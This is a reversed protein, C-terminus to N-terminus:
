LEEFGRLIEEQTMQSSKKEKPTKTSKEKSVLVAERVYRRLAIVMKGIDTDEMLSVAAPNTMLAKKLVSMANKLDEEDPITELAEIQAKIDVYAQESETQPALELELHAATTEILAPTSTLLEKSPEPMSEKKEPEQEKQSSALREQEKKLKMKEIFSLEKPKAELQKPEETPPLDLVSVIEQAAQKLQIPVMGTESMTEEAQLAVLLKEAAALKRAALTEALSM